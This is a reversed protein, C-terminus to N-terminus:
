KIFGGGIVKGNDYFVISQGPTIARQPNIFHTLINEGNIEFSCDEFKSSYRVKAKISKGVYNEKDNYPFFNNISIVDKTFLDDNSGLTVTNDDKNINVVFMPKGFTGGLGKRQGITYNLIGKHKGIVNGKTDIFNGEKINSGHNILFDVYNETFCIEQSDRKNANKLGYKSAIDRIDNKNNFGELPFILREIVDKPLRYLMYSQDKIINESIGIYKSGQENIIKAYHGTAIYPINLKDANEILKKFKINPNCVICPNPTKGNEYSNIFDTIVTKYFDDSVDETILEINLYDSLSKAENLAETNNPVANFFYATVNYGKEKLLIASVASDVGGSFGLLVSKTKELQNEM